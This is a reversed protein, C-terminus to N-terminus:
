GQNPNVNNLKELWKSLSSDQAPSTSAQKLKTIIDFIAVAAAKQDSEKEATDVLRVLRTAAGPTGAMLIDTAENLMQSYMETSARALINPFETLNWRSYYTTHTTAFRWAGNEREPCKAEHEFLKDKRVAAKERTGGLQLGCHRCSYDTKLFRGLPLGAARGALIIYIARQQADSLGAIDRTLDDSLIISAIAPM